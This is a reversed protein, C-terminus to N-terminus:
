FDYIPSMLLPTASVRAQWFIYWFFENNPACHEGERDGEGAFTYNFLRCFGVGM